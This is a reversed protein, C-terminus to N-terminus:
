RLAWVNGATDVEGGASDDNTVALAKANNDQGPWYGNGTLNRATGFPHVGGWGDLTYGGTGNNVIVLSRAIDWGNWYTPSTSPPAASGFPHLGGWGDLVYGGNDSTLALSRAIDWGSWYKSVTMGPATGFPHLGGWGDLVYGGLNDSRLVIGRAIDWGQWYTGAPMAPATGFPHLGGWGDLVYGGSDDSRLVIGRAIDWGPWRTATNPLAPAGGFPTVSGDPALSYGGPGTHRMAVGRDVTTTLAGTITPGSQPFWAVSEDVLTFSQSFVAATTNVEFPFQFTYRGGPPVTGVVAAPRASSYWGGASPELLSTSQGSPLALHVNSSWTQTGTNQVTVQMTGSEHVWLHSADISTGASSLMSVSMPQYSRQGCGVQGDNIISSYAPLTQAGRMLYAGGKYPQTGRHIVWGGICLGDLPYENPNSNGPDFPAVQHFLSMHVHDGDALGGCPTTMSTKGLLQGAHVMQRDAIKSNIIVHYYITSWGDPQGATDLHNIEIVPGGCNFLRVQGAHAATVDAGPKLFDMGGWLAPNTSLNYSHPGNFQYTSGVPFPLMLDQPASSSAAEAKRASPVATSVTLTTAAIAGMMVGNLVRRTVVVRSRVSARHSGSPVSSVLSM